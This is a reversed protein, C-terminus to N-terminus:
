GGLETPFLWWVVVKVNMFFLSALEWQGVWQSVGSRWTSIQIVELFILRISKLSKSLVDAGSM